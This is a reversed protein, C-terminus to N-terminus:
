PTAEMPQAAMRLAGRHNPLELFLAGDLVYWRHAAELGAQFERGRSDAGCTRKSMTLPGISVKGGDLRWPGIGRNCDARVAVRYEPQFEITYRAPRAVVGPMSATGGAIWEWRSARLTTEGADNAFPLGGCGAMAAVALALLAVRGNGGCVM